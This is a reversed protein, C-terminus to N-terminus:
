VRVFSNYNRELIDGLERAKWLCRAIWRKCLHINFLRIEIHMTGDYSHTSVHRIADYRMEPGNFRLMCYQAKRGASPKFGDEIGKYWQQGIKRVIPFFPGFDGSMHVHLGCSQNCEAKPWGTKIREVMKFVQGRNDWDFIPSVFELGSPQISADSKIDWDTTRKITLADEYDMSIKAIELEVGFRLM